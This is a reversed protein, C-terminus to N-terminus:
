CKSLEVELNPVLIVNASNLKWPDQTSSTSARFHLSYMWNYQKGASRISHALSAEQAQHLRTGKRGAFEKDFDPNAGSHLAAWRKM